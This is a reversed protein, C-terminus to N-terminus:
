GNPACHTLGLAHLEQAVSHFPSEKAFALEPNAKVANVAEQAGKLASSVAQEEGSPAGLATLGDIQGQVSPVYVAETAEVLQAKTPEENEQLGHAKFLAVIKAEQAKDGAVCVANGKAVFQAKTITATAETSTSSGSSGCGAVFLSVLFLVAVPV